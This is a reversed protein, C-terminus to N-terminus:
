SLYPHARMKAKTYVLPEKLCVVLMVERTSMHRSRRVHVNQSLTRRRFILFILIMGVTVVVVLGIVIFERPVAYITMSTVTVAGNTYTNDDIDTEGLVVSAAASIAYTGDPVSSTNWAFILNRQANPSLSVASSTGILISDYFASVEFTETANGENKVVVLVNVIQGPIVDMYQDSPIVNVIAVDHETAAFGTYPKKQPFFDIMISDSAYTVELQSTLFPSYVLSLLLLLALINERNLKRSMCMM